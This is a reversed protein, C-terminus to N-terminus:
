KAEFCTKCCSNTRFFVRDEKCLKCKRDQCEEKPCIWACEATKVFYNGCARCMTQKEKEVGEILAPTYQKESPLENHILSKGSLVDALLEMGTFQVSSGTTLTEVFSEMESQFFELLKGPNVENMELSKKWDQVNEHYMPDPIVSLSNQLYCKFLLLTKYFCIKKGEPTGSLSNDAMLGRIFSDDVQTRIRSKKARPPLMGQDEDDQSLDDRDSDGLFQTMVEDLRVEAEDDLLQHIHEGLDEERRIRQRFM